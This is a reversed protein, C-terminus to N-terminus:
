LLKSFLAYRRIMHGHHRGTIKLSTNSQHQLAHIAETYGKARALEHIEEVLLSGLGACRAAPDVALTKVIVAPKEGRAAAELDPIAFVFGCPQRDRESIRVLDPDVRDRVKRYAEMFGEEELPTYLFNGAFSRLSLAHIARLEEDYRAPDLPRIVVGSRLLRERLAAAMTAQGDLPLSSSSYSSLLTFGATEWWEPYPAPNRPELLFPSTGDSEVVFRHSRWTNGNMPGVVTQFGLSKLHNAAGALLMAASAEDVAEFGGITAIPVGDLKPTDTWWLAAHALIFDKGDTVYARADPLDGAPALHHPGLLGTVPELGPIQSGPQLLFSAQNM